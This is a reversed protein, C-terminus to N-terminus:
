TNGSRFAVSLSCIVTIQLSYSFINLNEKCEIAIANFVKNRRTIIPIAVIVISPFTKSLKLFITEYFFFNIPMRFIPRM